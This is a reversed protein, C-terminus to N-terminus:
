HRLLDEIVQRVLEIDPIREDIQNPWREVAAVATGITFSDGLAVYGITSDEEAGGIGVTLAVPLLAYAFPTGRRAM